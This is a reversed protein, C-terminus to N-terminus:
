DLSAKFLQAMIAISGEVYNWQLTTIIQTKSQQNSILHLINRLDLVYKYNQAADSM